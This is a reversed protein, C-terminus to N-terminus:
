TVSQLKTVVNIIVIVVGIRFWNEGYSRAVAKIKGAPAADDEGRQPM